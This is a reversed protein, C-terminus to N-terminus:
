HPHIEDLYVGNSTAAYVIDPSLPDLALDLVNGAPLGGSVPVWTRGHDNTRLVGIGYWSVLVTNAEPFIFDTAGVIADDINWHAGRDRTVWGDPEAPPIGIPSPLIPWGVVFVTSPDFPDVGITGIVVGVAGLLKAGTWSTGGDSTTKRPQL